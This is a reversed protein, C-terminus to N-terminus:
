PRGAGVLGFTFLPELSILTGTHSAAIITNVGWPGSGVYMVVHDIMHDNDLNYYFLLDGPRLANLAVHRIAYYQEAATRPIAFGARGWSWQTLGSCDFGQGPTEGGWVYPVGIQSEAASVAAMGQKTGAPSGTVASATIQAIVALIRNAANQGGIQTAAAVAAEVAQTNHQHAAAIAVAMEYALIQGALARNVQSLTHQTALENASNQAFLYNLEKADAAKQNLQNNQQTLIRELSRHELSLRYELERLNGVATNLYVQRADAQLVNQDFVAMGAASSAADVYATVLGAVLKRNTTKIHREKAAAQHHLFIIRANLNAIDQATQDYRQSLAGSLAVDHSLQASLRAIKNKIEQITYGHASQPTMVAMLLGVVLLARAGRGLARTSRCLV